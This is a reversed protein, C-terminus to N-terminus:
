GPPLPLYIMVMIVYVMILVFFLFFGFAKTRTSEDKEVLMKNASVGLLIIAIIGILASSIVLAVEM